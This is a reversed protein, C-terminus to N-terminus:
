FGFGAYGGAGISFQLGLNGGAYPTGGYFGGYGAGNYGYGNYGGIMAPGSNISNGYNQGAQVYNNYLGQAAGM